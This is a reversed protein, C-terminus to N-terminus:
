VYNFPPLARLTLKQPHRSPLSMWIESILSEGTLKRVGQISVYAHLCRSVAGNKIATIPETSTSQHCM